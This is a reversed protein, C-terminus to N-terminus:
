CESIRIDNFTFITLEYILLLFRSVACSICRVASQRTRSCVSVHCIAVAPCSTHRNIKRRRMRGTRPCNSNCFFLLWYRPVGSPAIVGPPRRQRPIECKAAGRHPLLYSFKKLIKKYLSLTTKFSKDNFTKKELTNRLM